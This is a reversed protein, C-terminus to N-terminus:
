RNKYDTHCAKCNKAAEMFAPKITDLNGSKAAASLAATDSVFKNMKTKFGDMDEWVAPKAKTDGKDSGPYTFGELGMKALAAMSDARYQFEAADFDKKGKIMDGMQGTHAGVLHFVSQRFEIADEADEMAHASAISAATIMSATVIAKFNLKM